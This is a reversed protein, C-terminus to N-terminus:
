SSSALKKKFVLLEILWNMSVTEVKKLYKQIFDLQSFHLIAFIKFKLTNLHGDTTHFTNSVM